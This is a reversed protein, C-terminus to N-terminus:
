RVTVALLLPLDAVREAIYALFRLSPLDGWHADDVALLLPGSESLTSTLWYLGHLAAAEDASSSRDGSLGLAPRALGAAGDLLELRRPDGSRIVGAFLQRVLSWALDRELLGARASLAQLGNRAALERAATLVSTKGIGAPGEIVAVAGRGSRAESVLAALRELEDSRELLGVQAELM